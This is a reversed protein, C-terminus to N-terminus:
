AGRGAILWYLGGAAFGATAFVQWIFAPLGSVGHRQAELILPAAAVALGGGAIYFLASRIRAVEGIIVVALSLTLTTMFPLSLGQLFWDVLTIADGDRHLAHTARELGLQVAILVACIAAVIYGFTVLLLRGLAAFM